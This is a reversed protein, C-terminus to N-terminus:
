KKLLAAASEASLNVISSAKEYLAQPIFSFPPSITAIWASM